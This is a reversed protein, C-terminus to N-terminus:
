TTAICSHNECLSNEHSRSVSIATYHCILSHQKRVLGVRLLGMCKPNATKNFKHNELLIKYTRRM